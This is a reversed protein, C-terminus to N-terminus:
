LRLLLYIATFRLLHNRQMVLSKLRATSELRPSTQQSPLLTKQLNKPPIPPQFKLLIPSQYTPGAPLHKTLSKPPSTAQRPLLILPQCRLYKRPVQQLMLDSSGSSKLRISINTLCEINLGIYNSPPQATSSIDVQLIANVNPAVTTKKFIALINFYKPQFAVLIINHFKQFVEFEFDLHDLILQLTFEM